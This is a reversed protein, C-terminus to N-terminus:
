KLEKEDGQPTKFYLKEGDIIHADLKVLDRDMELGFEKRIKAHEESGRIRNSFDILRQRRINPQMQSYPRLAMKLSFLFLYFNDILQIAKIQTKEIFFDISM